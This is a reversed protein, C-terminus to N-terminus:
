IKMLKPKLCLDSKDPWYNWIMMIKENNKAVGIRRNAKFKATENLRTDRKKWNRIWQSITNKKKKTTACEGARKACLTLLTYTFTILFVFFLIRWHKESVVFRNWILNLRWVCWLLITVVVACLAHFINYYVLLFM